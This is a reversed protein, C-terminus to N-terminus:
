IWITPKTPKELCTSAERGRQGGRRQQAKGVPESDTQNTPLWKAKPWAPANFARQGKDAKCILHPAASSLSDAAALVLSLVGCWKIANRQCCRSLSWHGWYSFRAVCARGGVCKWKRGPLRSAEMVCWCYCCCCCCCCERKAVSERLATSQHCTTQTGNGVNQQQQQQQAKSKICM